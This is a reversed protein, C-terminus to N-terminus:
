TVPRSSATVQPENLPTYWHVYRRYREAFAGAFAAVLEPYEHDAFARPLWLPCGYHVLDVIPMVGLEDVLYPIVQDIWSWDFQGRNREIRHWPVGWRVARVGLDGVLSLDERWHQYHGMLEYEDLSRYRGRAHAVFTDEIGTGWIFSNSDLSPIV